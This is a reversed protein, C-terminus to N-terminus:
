NSRKHQMVDHSELQGNICKEVDKRMALPISDFAEDGNLIDKVAKNVQENYDM